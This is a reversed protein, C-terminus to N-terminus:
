VWYFLHDVICSEIRKLELLSCKLITTWKLKLFSEEDIYITVKRASCLKKRQENLAIFDEIKLDEARNIFLKNINIRQLKPAHCIFPVVDSLKAYRFELRNLSNFHQAMSKLSNSECFGFGISLEKISEVTARPFNNPLFYASHIHLKELNQLAWLHQAQEWFHYDHKIYLHLQKYFDHKYLENALQCIAGFDSYLADKIHIDLRDFKINSDMMQSCLKLFLESDLSFIRINPNQQFFVLLNDCEITQETTHLSENEIEFHELSPYHRLLWQNGTGILAKPLTCTGVGLYKLRPCYKLLVEYFDGYIEAWSLKLTELENLIYKISEIQPNTLRYTSIYLHKIWEFYNLRAYCCKSLLRDNYISLRLSKPYNLKIYYNVVQKMRKCTRRFTLLETLSLWEFICEFCDVNLKFIQPATTSAGVIAKTKTACQQTVDIISKHEETTKLRKRQNGSRDDMRVENM